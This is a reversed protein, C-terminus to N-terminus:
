SRKLLISLSELNCRLLMEASFTCSPIIILDAFIPLTFRYLVATELYTCADKATATVQFPSASVLCETRNLDQLVNTDTLHYCPMRFVFSFLIFLNRVM